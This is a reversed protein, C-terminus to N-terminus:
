GLDVRSVREALRPIQVQTALLETPIELATVLGRDMRLCEYVTGNGGISYIYHRNAAVSVIVSYRESGTPHSPDGYFEQRSSSQIRTPASEQHRNLVDAVCIGEIIPATFIVGGSSAPYGDPDRNRELWWRRVNMALGGLDAYLVVTQIFTHIHGALEILQVDPGQAAPGIQYYHSGLDENLVLERVPANQLVQNKLDSLLDEFEARNREWDLQTGGDGRQMIRGYGPDIAIIAIADALDRRSSLNSYEDGMNCGWILELLDRSTFSHVRCGAHGQRTEELASRTWDPFTSQLTLLPLDLQKYLAQRM